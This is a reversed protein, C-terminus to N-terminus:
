SFHIMVTVLLCPQPCLKVACPVVRCSARPETGSMAFSFLLLCLPKVVPAVSGDTRCGQIGSRRASRSDVMVTGLAEESGAFVSVATLVGQAMTKVKEEAMELGSGPTICLLVAPPLIKM